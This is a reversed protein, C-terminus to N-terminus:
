NTSCCFSIGGLRDLRWCVLTDVQRRRAARLLDDLAPRSEKAGSVGGDVFERASWGRAGAYSRLESLQNECTQDVTSVRAYLAARIQSM